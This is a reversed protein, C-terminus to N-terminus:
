CIMTRSFAKNLLGRPYFIMKHFSLIRDTTSCSTRVSRVSDVSSGRTRYPYYGIYGLRAFKSMYGGGKTTWDCSGRRRMRSSSFRRCLFRSLSANVFFATDKDKRHFIVIM